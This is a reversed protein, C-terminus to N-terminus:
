EDVFWGLRKKYLKALTLLEGVDLRREGTEINALKSHHKWRLAKAADRQTLGALHRAEVLRRLVRRYVATHPSRMGGLIRWPVAHESTRVLWALRTGLPLPCLGLPFM